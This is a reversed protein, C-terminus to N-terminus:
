SRMALEVWGLNEAAHESNNELVLLAKKEYLRQIEMLVPMVGHPAWEADADLWGLAQAHGLTDHSDMNGENGHLHFHLGFGLAEYRAISEMWAELPEREWIRSHGLDFTFGFQSAQGQRSLELYFDDLWARSEFTKELHLRLGLASAMDIAPACLSACKAPDLSRWIVKAPDHGRQFHIVADHVGVSNAWGAERALAQAQTNLVSDDDESPAQMANSRSAIAKVRALNSTSWDQNVVDLLGIKAHSLHLGLAHGPKKSFENKLRAEINTGMGTGAYNACEIGAGWELALDLCQENQKTDRDDFIKIAWM